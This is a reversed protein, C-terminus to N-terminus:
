QVGGAELKITGMTVLGSTDSPVDIEFHGSGDRLTVVYRTAPKLSMVAFRGTSNTFFPVGPDSPKGIPRAVGAALRVPSGDAFTLSGAASVFADTGVRIAYGSRYPPRVRYVGPGLDYGAPPDKVDYPVSQDAYSTLYNNVAGGTFDSKSVYEADAVSQGAVVTKGKLTKYPYLIAFSDTIPRSTAVHGDAFVIATGFRVTSVQANGIRGVTTGFTSQSASLNFRNATYDAYASVSANGPDREVTAGYGLSGIRGSSSRNYSASATDTGSDYRAEARSRYNPQYVLSLFAGVGHQRAFRDSFRAYDAGARIGWKETLRYSVSGSLRYSDGLGNRGKLYSGSVTALLKTNIARTYQADVSLANANDPLSNGLGGFYRSQYYVRISASDVNGGRDFSQDYGLAISYGLGNGKANSIGGDLQVRGGRGVLYQTQAVVQQIQRSAQVGIGIAPLTLFAKRWFGTFAPDRTYHPSSGLQNGVFGINASYEYDGPVLDIPDLYSQYQINQVRGSDDRVEVRVDNSGTSLPLSSLDYVGSQLRQQKYLVGNRYISVVSDNTLVIQRNTQLIASRSLDFRNRQRSVGIGALQAYGQQGRIEPTLDGAEWRRYSDPDDYVLRLFNRDFRYQTTTGNLTPNDALNGEGELVFGGVRFAGSFFASPGVNRGGSWQYSQALNINLYGSVGAPKLDPEERREKPQEFLREAVRDGADISLIVISLTSPDYQLELGTGALDEPSFRDLQGLKNALRTKGGENLLSDILKEFTERYVFFRNDKTILVPIDGLIRDRYTLPVTLDIDRNYPNIAPSLPKPPAPTGGPLPITVQGDAPPAPQAIPPAPASTPAAPSSRGGPLPISVQALAPTACLLASSTLLIRRLKM